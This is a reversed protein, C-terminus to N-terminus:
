ARRKEYSCRPFADWAQCQRVLSMIAFNKRKKKGMSVM